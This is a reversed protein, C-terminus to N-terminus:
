GNPRSPSRLGTGMASPIEDRQKKAPVMVVVFGNLQEVFIGSHKKAYTNINQVVYHIIIALPTHM